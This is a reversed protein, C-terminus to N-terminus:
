HGAEANNMFLRSQIYDMLDKHRYRVASGMKVFPIQVAGLGARANVLTKPHLKLLQAAEKTTYLTNERKEEFILKQPKSM